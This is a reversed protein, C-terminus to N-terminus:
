KTSSTEVPLDKRASWEEWSGDYLSANYGLMRAVFYLLSAQQGIHCYTIVHDGPKAGAARFEQELTARDKFHMSDDVLSSYQINAAGPIHGARPHGGSDDGSYYQPTRADLIDVGAKHLHAKVWAADVVLNPNPHPSFTGKVPKRVEKTVPQNAKRWAEIGGDLISTQNGLGLYDLTFYTRGMSTIKPGSSYLVIHSDNTVGLAEFTTVLQEVPPLELTLGTGDPQRIDSYLLAQAGPIHGSRYDQGDGMYILLLDKDNIHQALWVVSVLFPQRSEKEAATARAPNAFALASFILVVGMCGLIIKKM